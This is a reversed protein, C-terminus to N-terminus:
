LFFIIVFLHGSLWHINYSIIFDYIYKLQTYMCVQALHLLMNIHDLTNIIWLIFDYFM